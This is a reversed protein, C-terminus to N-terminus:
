LEADPRSDRERGRKRLWANRHINRPNSAVVATPHSMECIDTDCSEVTAPRNRGITMTWSAIANPRPRAIVGCRRARRARGTRRRRPARRPGPRRASRRARGRASAAAPKLAAAHETGGREVSGDGLAVQCADARVQEHGDDAQDHRAEDVQDQEVGRREAQDDRVRRTSMKVPSVAYWTWRMWFPSM